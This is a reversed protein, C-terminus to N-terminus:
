DMLEMCCREQLALRLERFIDSVLAPSNIFPDSLLRQAISPYIGTLYFYEFGFADVYFGPAVRELDITPSQHQRAKM